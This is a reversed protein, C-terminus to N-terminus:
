SITDFAEMKDLLLCSLAKGKYESHKSDRKMSDLEDCFLILTLRNIDTFSTQRHNVLETPAPQHDPHLEVPIFFPLSSLNQQLARTSRLRPPCTYDFVGM